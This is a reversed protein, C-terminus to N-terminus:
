VIQGISLQKVRELKFFDINCEFDHSTESYWSLPLRKGIQGTKSLNDILNFM